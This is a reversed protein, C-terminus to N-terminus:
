DQLYKNIKDRDFIKEFNFEADKISADPENIEDQYKADAQSHYGTAKGNLECYLIQAIRYYPPIEVSVPSANYIILPLKGKYGPNAFMSIPLILGIRSFTSRPLIIGCKDEPIVIKEFTKSYLYQGPQLQFGKALDIEEIRDKLLQKYSEGETLILPATDKRIYATDDIRLDISAGRINKKLLAMEPTNKILEQLKDTAYIM